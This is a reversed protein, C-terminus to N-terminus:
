ALLRARVRPLILGVKVFLHSEQPCANARETEWPLRARIHGPFIRYTWRKERRSLKVCCSTHGPWLCIRLYAFSWHLPKKPKRSNKQTNTDPFKTKTPELLGSFMVFHGWFIHTYGSFNIQVCISLVRRTSTKNACLYILSNLRFRRTKCKAPVFFELQVSRQQFLPWDYFLMWKIILM